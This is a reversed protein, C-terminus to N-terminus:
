SATEVRLRPSASFSASLLSFSLCPPFPAQAESANAPLSLPSRPPFIRRAGWHSLSGAHGDSRLESKKTKRRKRGQCGRPVLSDRVKRVKRKSRRRRKRRAEADGRGICLRNPEPKAPDPLFLPVKVTLAM